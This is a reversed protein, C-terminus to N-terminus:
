GAGHELNQQLAHLAAFSQATDAGAILQGGLAIPPETVKLAAMGQRILFRKGGCAGRERKQALCAFVGENEEEDGAAPRRQELQGEIRIDSKLVGDLEVLQQQGRACRDILDVGEALM